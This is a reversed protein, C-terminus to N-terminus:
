PHSILLLIHRLLMAIIANDSALQFHAVPWFFSSLFHHILPGNGRFFRCIRCLEIQKRNNVGKSANGVLISHLIYPECGGHPGRTATYEM